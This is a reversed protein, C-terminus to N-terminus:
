NQLIVKQFKELIEYGSLTIIAFLYFATVYVGKLGKLKFRFMNSNTFSVNEMEQTTEPYELHCKLRKSLGSYKLIM